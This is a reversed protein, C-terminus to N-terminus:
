NEVIVKVDNRFVEFCEITGNGIVKSPLVQLREDNIASIKQTREKFMKM